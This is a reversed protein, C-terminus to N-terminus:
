NNEPIFDDLYKKLRKMKVSYDLNNEAFLRMEQPHLVDEKLTRYWSILKEFELPEDNAELEMCYSMATGSDSIDPDNHGFIFPIGRAFYERAKITTTSKIGKRHLGMASIGMHIRNMFAEVEEKQIHKGLIVNNEIGLRKIMATEHILNRGFLYLNIRFTGNYNRIGNFVRDLGNFDAKTGAGKLFIINFDDNFDPIQTRLKYESVKVADGGVLIRYGGKAVKNEHTGIEPSNCLGFAANKRIARGWLKERLLPLVLFELNGLISSVNWKLPNESSYLKIEETEATVHEFFIKRYYKKTLRNLFSGANDYRFYIFDFEPNEKELYDWISKHYAKRQKISGFYGKRANPVQIFKYPRGDTARDIDGTTFFLGFCDVGNENLGEIQNIVKTQVSSGGASASTFVYLIRM